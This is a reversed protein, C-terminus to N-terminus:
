YYSDYLQQISALDLVTGTTCSYRPVTLIAAAAAAAACRRVHRRIWYPVYLQLGSNPACQRWRMPTASARPWAAKTDDATSLPRQWLLSIRPRRLADASNEV